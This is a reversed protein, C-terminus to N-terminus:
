FNRFISPRMGDAGNEPTTHKTITELEVIPPSVLHYSNGERRRPAMASPRSAYGTSPPSQIGPSASSTTADMPLPGLSPQSTAAFRSPAISAFYPATKPNFLVAVRALTPTIEKLIEIWKGGMSFEFATFGTINGGPRALNSVFGQGVPDSVSVFVIPITRTADSFAALGETASALILDPKSAVLDAAVPRIRSTDAAPSWRYDIDINRGEIWGLERLGNRLADINRQGEQDGEALNLFVGIRRMREGSQQARAALPWAAAAGGILTIFERRKM